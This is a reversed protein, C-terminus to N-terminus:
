KVKLLRCNDSDLPLQYIQNLSLRRVALGGHLVQIAPQDESRQDAVKIFGFLYTTHGPALPPVEFSVLGDFAVRYSRAEDVKIVYQEPARTLLRLTQRSPPNSPTRTSVCGAMLLALWSCWCFQLFCKM